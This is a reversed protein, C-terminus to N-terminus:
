TDSSRRRGASHVRTRRREDRRAGASNRPEGCVCISSICRSGGGMCEGESTPPEELLAADAEAGGGEGRQEGVVAVGIVQSRFGRVERRLRLADDEEELGARGAVEFQEVVLGFEGPLVAFERRGLEEFAVPGREDVRVRLAEPRLELEGLVPLRPGFEGLQQRVGRLDRVVDGDHLRHHRVGEVMGRGLAHHVGPGHLEAPRAEARPAEVAEALIRFVEGAEDDEGGAAFAQRREVVADLEAAARLRHEEEVIRVADIGGRLLVREIGDVGEILEAEVGDAIGFDGRADAAVLHGVPHLVGRRLHHVDRLLVLLREVEVPGLRALVGVRVRGQQGAPEDLFPDAEHLDVVFGPVLVAVEDGVQLLVALVGILSRRRQDGVQLLPPHQVVSQHDPAALEAARRHHLAAGVAAVVVRVGEGVPEGAATDLAALRDALRVIQAEVRHLVPHVHVVQVRRQQMEQAEVVRLQRELELAAREPQRIHM